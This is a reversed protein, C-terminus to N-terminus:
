SERIERTKLHKTILAHLTVREEPMPSTTKKLHKAHDLVASVDTIDIEDWEHLSWSWWESKLLRKRTDEDFRYRIRKAPVGGVISYPEVDKTVVANAAIVSGTGLTVGHALTVNDGIWVDHEIKILDGFADFRPYQARVSGWRHARRKRYFAPSSSLWDIPHADGMVNVGRGISCYRGISRVNSFASLSYSYAGLPMVNGVPHQTNHEFPLQSVTFAVDQIQRPFFVVGCKEELTDLEHRTLIM